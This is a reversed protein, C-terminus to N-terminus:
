DHLLETLTTESKMIPIDSSNDKLWKKPAYLYQPDKDEFCSLALILGNTLGHMYEDYNWNGNESNDRALKALVDLSSHMSM